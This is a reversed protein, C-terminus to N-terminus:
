IWGLKHAVVEGIECLGGIETAEMDGEPYFAAVANNIDDFKDAKKRLVKNEEMLQRPTLGCENAVTGAEAILQANAEAEEGTPITREDPMGNGSDNGYVEGMMTHIGNIDGTFLTFGSDEQYSSKWEGGTIKLEKSM